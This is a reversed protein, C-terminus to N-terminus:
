IQERQSSRAQLDAYIRKELGRMETGHVESPKDDVYVGKDLGSILVAYDGATWLERDHRVAATRQMRRVRILFAFFVLVNVFSMWYAASALPSHGQCYPAGPTPVFVDLDSHSLQVSSMNDTYEECTGEGFSLVTGLIGSAGPESLVRDSLNRGILALNAQGDPRLGCTQIADMLMGTSNASKTSSRCAARAAARRSNNVLAPISIMAMLLFVMGCEFQFQLFLNLAVSCGYNHLRSRGEFLSFPKVNVRVGNRVYQGDISRKINVIRKLLSASKAKLTSAVRFVEASQERVIRVAVKNSSTPCNVESWRQAKM